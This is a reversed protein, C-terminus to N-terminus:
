RCPRVRRCRGGARALTSYSWPRRRRPWGAARCIRRRLLSSLRPWPGSALAATHLIFRALKGNEKGAPTNPRNPERVPPKQKPLNASTSSSVLIQPAEKSLRNPAPPTRDQLVREERTSSKLRKPARRRPSETNRGLGEAIRDFLITGPDQPRTRWCERGPFTASAQM